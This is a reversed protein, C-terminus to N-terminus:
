RGIVKIKGVIKNDAIALLRRTAKAQSNFYGREIYLETIKEATDKLKRKFEKVTLEREKQPQFQEEIQTQIEEASLITSGKVEISVPRNSVAIATPVIYKAATADRKPETKVPCIESSKSSKSKSSQNKRKSALILQTVSAESSLLEIQDPKAFVTPTINTQNDPSILDAKIKSRVTKASNLESVQVKTGDRITLDDQFINLDDTNREQGLTSSQWSFLLLSSVALSHSVNKYWNIM